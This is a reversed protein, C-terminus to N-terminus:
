CNHKVGVHTVFFSYLLSLVWFFVQDILELVHTPDNDLTVLSEYAVKAADQEADKLRSHCQDSPFPKDGVKVTSSFELQHPDGKGETHYVPLNLNNRQTWEQLRNKYNSHKDAYFVHSNTCYLM